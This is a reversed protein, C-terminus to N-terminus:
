RRKIFFEAKILEGEEDLQGFVTSSLRPEDKPGYFRDGAATFQRRMYESPITPRVVNGAEPKGLRRIFESFKRGHEDTRIERKMQKLPKGVTIRPERTKDGKKYGLRLLNGASAVSDQDEFFGKGGPIFPPILRRFHWGWRQSFTTNVARTRVGANVGDEMLVVSVFTGSPLNKCVKKSFITWIFLCIYAILLLVLIRWVYCWLPSRTFIVNAAATNSTLYTVEVAREGDRIFMALFTHLPRFIDRTIRIELGWEGNDLQVVEDERGAPLWFYKSLTGKDKIVFAGAAHAEKLDSELISTGDCLVRFQLVANSEVLRFRDIESGGGKYPIVEYSTDVIKLAVTDEGKLEPFAKGKVTLTVEKPKDVPTIATTGVNSEAPIYYLKNDEVRIMGSELAAEFVDDPMKVGGVSLEYDVLPGDLAVPQPKDTKTVVEFVIEQKQYDPRGYREPDDQLKLQHQSLALEKNGNATTATVLIEAPSYALVHEGEAPINYESVVEMVVAYEGYLNDVPEFTALVTGDSQKEGKAKAETGSEKHYAKVSWTYDEMQEATLPDKGNVAKDYVTFTVNATPKDSKIATPGDAEVRYDEANELIVCMLSDYLNYSGGLLSLQVGIEERGAVLSFAEGIAYDGKAYKVKTVPEGFLASLEDASVEDGSARDYVRYGVRLKEGPRCEKCVTAASAEIWEGAENQYESYAELRLAPEVLVTLEDVQGTFTMELVGDTLYGDTQIVASFGNALQLPEDPLIVCEQTTTLPKGDLTASKLKAGCNQGIVSVNSVTYDIDNLDITVKTGGAASMRQYNESPLTYRGTMLNAVDEMRDLLETSTPAIYYNFSPDAKDLEELAKKEARVKEAKNSTDDPKKDFERGFALYIAHLSSYDALYPKIADTAYIGDFPGDTLVVLWYQTDSVEMGETEEARKMGADTLEKVAYKLPGAPTEGKPTTAMVSNDLLDKIAADRDGTLIVEKRYDRATEDVIPDGLITDPNNMPNIFLKDEPGLLAVLMQIAYRAYEKRYEEKNMPGMSASNDYLVSVVKKPQDGGGDGTNAEAAALPVILVHSLLCFLALLMAIHKKCRKM